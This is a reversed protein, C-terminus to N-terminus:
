SGPSAVELLSFHPKLNEWWSSDDCHHHGNRAVCKVANVLEKDSIYSKQKKIKMDYTLLTNVYCKQIGDPFGSLKRLKLTKEDFVRYILWKWCNKLSITTARVFSPMTDKVCVIANNIGIAIGVFNM